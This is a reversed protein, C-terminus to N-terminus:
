YCLLAHLQCLSETLMRLKRPSSSARALSMHWSFFRDYHDIANHILSWSVYKMSFHREYVRSDETQKALWIMDKSSGNLDRPSQIQKPPVWRTARQRVSRQCVGKQRVGKQGKAM